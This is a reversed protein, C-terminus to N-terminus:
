AWTDRIQTAEFLYSDLLRISNDLKFVSDKCRSEVKLRNIKETGIMSKMANTISEANWAVFYTAADGMIERHGPVDSCAVPCGLNLAEIPPMNTEGFFSAFILSTTNKYLTYLVQKSVYGLFLVRSDVSLEKTRGQVYSMNTKDGGTFVLKYDPYDQVLRAFAKIVTIHNKHAWFQAPYFFFKHRELGYEELIHNMTSDNVVENIVNGAFIPMVKIKNEHINAYKILDNRGAESEALVMLSRQLTEEFFKTRGKFNRGRVLEPFPYTVKFGMDWVTMVFPIDPLIFDDQNIYYMLKVKNERLVRNYHKNFFKAKVHFCFKVYAKISTLKTGFLGKDHVIGLPIINCDSDIKKEGPNFFVYRVDNTPARKMLAGILADYYSFGGGTEPKFGYRLLVGINM